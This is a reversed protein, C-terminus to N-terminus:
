SSNRSASPRRWVRVCKCSQLGSYECLFLRQVRLSTYLPGGVVTLIHGAPIQHKYASGLRFGNQLYWEKILHFSNEQKM